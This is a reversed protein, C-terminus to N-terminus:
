ASILDKEVAPAAPSAAEEARQRRLSNLACHAAKQGSMFMAGFTPGMRPCGDLEAVEMGCIVMGPVVERTHNVVADEASNMDLAAMGPANQVLGLKALRKVGSAGMPGDHGTSSVMVKSELVNPDMCMQTDHNLSVLTWNTVAGGVYPGKAPDDRIVLDEVATANFLKINPAQLVKSLLTSTFLAAHKIVVYDGEDDYPVSLEDLLEHAPKRVVMASFLQGGLWAGGGPAVGQEIVAVKVDPHKSLEYACSLGASGAGVIIVDCEAYEDLDKFYRSTMARSVQSERIPAFKFDDFPNSAVLHELHQAGAASRVILRQQRPTVRAVSSNKSAVRPITAGLAHSTMSFAM